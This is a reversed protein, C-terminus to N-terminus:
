CCFYYYNKIRYFKKWSFDTKKKLNNSITIQFHVTEKNYYTPGVGRVNTIFILFFSSLHHRKNSKNYM